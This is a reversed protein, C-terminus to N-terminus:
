IFQCLSLAELLAQCVTPELYVHAGAAATVIELVAVPLTITIKIIIM